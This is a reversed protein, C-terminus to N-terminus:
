RILVKCSIVRSSSSSSRRIAAKGSGTVMFAVTTDIPLGGFGSHEANEHLPGFSALFPEIICFNALDGPEITMLHFSHQLFKSAFSRDKDGSVTRAGPVIPLFRSLSPFQSEISCQEIVHEIIRFISSNAFISLNISLETFFSVSSGNEVSLALSALISYRM